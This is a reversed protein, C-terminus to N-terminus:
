AKFETRILQELEGLSHVMYDPDSAKLAALSGHGHTIGVTYRAGANKGAFIDNPSDGIMVTEEPLVGCEKAALLYGEPDPKASSVRDCHVISDFYHEINHTRFLDHIKHNAGTLIAMKFELAKVTELMQYLGEYTPMSSGNAVFFEGNERVMQDVDIGPFFTAFIDPLAKAQSLQGKIEEETPAPRGHLAAVHAYASVIFEFGDILTGDSDFVIAKIV